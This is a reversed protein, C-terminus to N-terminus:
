IQPMGTSQEMQTLANQYSNVAELYQAKVDVNAKQAALATTLDIQGVEYARQSLQVVKQSEDLIRKQYSEIRNRATQVDQYAVVLEEAIVNKQARIQRDIQKGIARLRAIEGQRMNGVPIEQTVGIFVGKTTPGEPPNGSVSHGVNLQPNPVINGYALKLAAKNTSMQKKLIKVDLRHDQAKLILTKLTPLPKEFDPLLETNEVKIKFSPLKHVELEESHNRGVIVNLRQTLQRLRLRSQDLDANAQLVALDARIADLGAVDGASLRKEAISKLNSSLNFLDQNVDLKEHALVVQLYARRVIGRLNWLSKEIELEAQGIQRRALLLRFALKWPPEIPISVGLQTAKQATDNFYVISPNPFTFAQALGARSLGLHTRISEARPSSLLTENFAANLSFASSATTDGAIADSASNDSQPTTGPALGPMFPTSLQAVVAPARAPSSITKSSKAFVPQVIASLGIAILLNRKKSMIIAVLVFPLSLM